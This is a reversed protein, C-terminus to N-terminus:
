HKQIERQVLAQVIPRLFEKTIIEIVQPRMKDLIRQVIADVLVPDPSNLSAPSSTSAQSISETAM